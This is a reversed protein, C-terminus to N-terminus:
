SLYVFFFFCVCFFINIYKLSVACLQHHKNNNNNNTSFDRIQICKQQPFSAFRDNWEISSPQSFTIAAFGSPEHVLIYIFNCGFPLCTRFGDIYIYLYVTCCLRDRFLRQIKPTDRFSAFNQWTCWIMTSCLNHASECDLWTCILNEQLSRAPNELVLLMFRKFISKKLAFIWAREWQRQFTKSVRYIYDMGFRLNFSSM